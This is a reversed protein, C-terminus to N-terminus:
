KPKYGERRDGFLLQTPQRDLKDSLRNLSSVMKRTEMLLSPVQALGEGTIFKDADATLKTMNHVTGDADKVVTDADAMTLHLQTLDDNLLKTGTSFNTLITDLNASNRQLTATIDRTNALIDGFAKRNKDNLVDMIRDSIVQLKHVLEPASDVIQQFSSPKSKIIPYKQGEQRVVLPSNKTGGDIEVYSGGTLGESAISAVSDQHIKVEPKIQLTVIVKQPDDPDFVIEKVRGVDIGNYRVITGDGLGTVSGKFYTQYYAFEQSYQAGTLWLIAVVVGIICMLVFAGVAVYNAKTEM